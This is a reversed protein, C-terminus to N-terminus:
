LCCWIQMDNVLKIRKVGGCRQVIILTGHRVLPISLSHAYTRRCGGARLLSICVFAFLCDTFFTKIGERRTDHAYVRRIPRHFLTNVAYAKQWVIGNTIPDRPLYLTYARKYVEVSAFAFENSYWHSFNYHQTTKKQEENQKVSSEEAFSDNTVNNSEDKRERARLKIQMFTLMKHQYNKVLTCVIACM